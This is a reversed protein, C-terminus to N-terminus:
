TILLTTATCGAFTEGNDNGALSLVEKKGAPTRMMEDMRYFCEELASRYDKSKFSQLKLLEKVFHKKVYLAVEQGKHVFFIQKLVALSINKSVETGTLFVSFPCEM